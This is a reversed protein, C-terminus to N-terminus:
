DILGLEKNQQKLWTNLSLDSEKLKKVNEVGIYRYHWPEYNFGTEQSTEKPFSLVFGYDQAHETLWKSLQTYEFGDTRYSNESSTIDVTTGLQHESYGPRASLQDTKMISGFNSKVLDNYVRVQDAYSRFASTILYEMGAETIDDLMSDLQDAAERRMQTSSFWVDIGLDTLNVLDTPIYDQPIRYEKDVIALLQDADLYYKPNPWGTVSIPAQSTIVIDRKTVYNDSDTFELTHTKEIGPTYPVLLIYYHNPEEVQRLEFVWGAPLNTLEVAESASVSFELVQFESARTTFRFGVQAPWWIKAEIGITPEPKDLTSAVVTEPAVIEFAGSIFGVVFLVFFCWSFVVLKLFETFIKTFISTQKESM